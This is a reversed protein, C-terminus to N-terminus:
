STSEPLPSQAAFRLGEPHPQLQPSSLARPIPTDAGPAASALHPGCRRCRQVSARTAAGLTGPRLTCRRVVLLCSVGRRHLSGSSLVASHRCVFCWAPAAREAPSGPVRGVDAGAARGAGLIRRVRAHAAFQEGFSPARAHSRLLPQRLVRLPSVAVLRPHQLACRLPSASPPVSSFLSPSSRLWPALRHPLPRSPTHRHDAAAHRAPRPRAPPCVPRSGSSHLAASAPAPLSPLRVACRLGWPSGRPGQVHRSPCSCPRWPRLGAAGGSAGAREGRRM